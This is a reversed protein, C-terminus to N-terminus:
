RVRRGGAFVAPTIAELPAIPADYTGDWILARQSEEFRSLALACQGADPILGAFRIRASGMRAEFEEETIKDGPPVHAEMAAHQALVANATANIAATNAGPADRRARDRDGAAYTARLASVRASADSPTMKM